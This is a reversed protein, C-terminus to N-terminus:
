ERPPVSHVLRAHLPNRRVPVVVLAKQEQNYRLSGVKWFHLVRNLAVLADDKRCRVCYTFFTEHECRLLIEVGAPIKADMIEGKWQEAQPEEEEGYIDLFIIELIELKNPIEEEDDNNKM